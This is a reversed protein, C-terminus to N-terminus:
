FLLITVKKMNPVADVMYNGDALEAWDLFLVNHDKRKLYANAVVNISEHSMAELYGHIYLVTKKEPDFEPHAFMACSEDM